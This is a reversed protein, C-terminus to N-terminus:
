VRPARCNHWTRSVIARPKPGLFIRAAGVQVMGLETRPEMPPDVLAMESKKILFNIDPRAEPFPRVNLLAAAEVLDVIWAAPIPICM